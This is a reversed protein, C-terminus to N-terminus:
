EQPVAACTPELNWNAERKVADTITTTHIDRM